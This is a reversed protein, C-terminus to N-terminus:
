EVEKDSQIKRNDAQESIASNHSPKKLEKPKLNIRLIGTKGVIELIVGEAFTAGKLEGITGEVLVSDSNGNSLTVNKLNAKSALEISFFREKGQVEKKMNRM